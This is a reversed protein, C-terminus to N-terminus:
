TIKNAVRVLETFIDHRFSGQLNTSMCAAANSIKSQKPKKKKKKTHAYTHKSSKDQWPKCALKKRHYSIHEPTSGCKDNKKKVLSCKDNEM